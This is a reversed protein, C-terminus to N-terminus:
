MFFFKRTNLLVTLYGALWEDLFDYAISISVPGNDSIRVITKSPTGDLHRSEMIRSSRIHLSKQNESM